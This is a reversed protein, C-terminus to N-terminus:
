YNQPEKKGIGKIGQINDSKDGILSRYIVYRDAEVDFKEILKEEGYLISLKGRPSFIKVKSSTLQFFDKDTSVIM